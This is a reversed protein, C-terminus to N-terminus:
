KDGAQYLCSHTHWWNCQHKQGGTGSFTATGTNAGFTVAVPSTITLNGAYASNGNYNPYLLGTSNQIFTVDNNYADPNTATMLLYGTGSHYFISSGNFINNGQSQDNSTGTKTSNV